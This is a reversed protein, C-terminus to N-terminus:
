CFSGVGEDYPIYKGDRVKRLPNRSLFVSECLGPPKGPVIKPTIIFTNTQGPLHTFIMHLLLVSVFYIHM